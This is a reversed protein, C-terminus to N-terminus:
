GAGRSTEEAAAGGARALRGREVGAEALDVAELLVDDGDLVRDLIVEVVDGLHLDVVLAALREGAAQPRDHPLVGVHDHDTLNAVLLRRRDGALRRRGAVEDEGGDVGVVRDGGQEPEEVEADFREHDGRGEGRDETLPEDAREALVALLRVLRLGLEEFFGVQRGVLDVDEVALRGLGLTTQGTQPPM